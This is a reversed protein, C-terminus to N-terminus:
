IRFGMQRQKRGGRMQAARELESVLLETNVEGEEMFRFTDWLNAFDGPGLKEPESLAALDRDSLAYNPFYVEWLRAITERDPYEFDVIRHFRRIFATDVNDKMNTTGIMIGSFREMEQLFVNVITTWHKQNVETSDGRKGLYADIEDFLLIAGTKKAADFMHSINRETNGWWKQLIQSPKAVIIKRGTKQALYHAFATKGTGSGGSFLLRLGKGKSMVTMRELINIPTSAKLLEPNFQESVVPEIVEIREDEELMLAPKSNQQPATKPVYGQMYLFRFLKKPINGGSSLVVKVQDTLQYMKEDPVKFSGFMDHVLAAHEGFCGKLSNIKSERGYLDINIKLKLIDTYEYFPCEEHIKLKNIVVAFPTGAQILEDMTNDMCDPVVLLRSRDTAANKKIVELDDGTSIPYLPLGNEKFILEAFTQVDAFPSGDIMLFFFCGAEMLSKVVSISEDDTRLDYKLDM